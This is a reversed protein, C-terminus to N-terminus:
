TLATVRAAWARLASRKRSSSSTAAAVAAAWAAFTGYLMIPERNFRHSPALTATMGPGGVHRFGSDLLGRSSEM